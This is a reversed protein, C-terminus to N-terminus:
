PQGEPTPVRPLSEIAAIRGGRGDFDFRVRLRARGDVVLLTERAGASVPGSDLALDLVADRAGLAESDVRGDREVRREPVRGRRAVRYCGLVAAGGDLARTEIELSRESEIRGLERATIRNAGRIGAIGPVPDVQPGEASISLLLRAHDSERVLRATVDALVRGGPEDEVYPARRSDLVEISAGAPSSRSCATLVALTVAGTWRMTTSTALPGRCQM